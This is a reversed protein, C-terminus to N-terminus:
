TIKTFLTEEDSVMYIASIQNYSDPSLPSFMQAGGPSVYGGIMEEKQEETLVIFYWQDEALLGDIEFPIANKVNPIKYLDKLTEIQAEDFIIAHQDNKLKAFIKKM